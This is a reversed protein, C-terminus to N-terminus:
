GKLKEKTKGKKHLKQTNDEAKLASELFLRRAERTKQASRIADSIQQEWYQSGQIINGTVYAQRLHRLRTAAVGKLLGPHVKNVMATWASGRNAIAEAGRQELLKTKEKVKEQIEAEHRLHAEELERIHAARASIFYDKVADIPASVTFSINKLRTAGSDDDQLPTDGSSPDMFQKLYQVQYWSLVYDTRWSGHRKLVTSIRKTYDCPRNSSIESPLMAQAYKRDLCSLKLVEWFTKEDEETILSFDKLFAPAGQLALLYVPALNNFQWYQVADESIKASWTSPMPELAIPSGDKTPYRITPGDSLQRRMPTAIGLERLTELLSLIRHYSSKGMQLASRFRRPVDKILLEGNESRLLKMIDELHSKAPICTCHVSLPLDTEFYTSDIIRDKMSLIFESGSQHRFIGTIHQHLVRARALKGKLFGYAQSTTQGEFLLAERIVEDPYGLLTQARSIDKHWHVYRELSTVDKNLWSLALGRPTNTDVEAKPLSGDVDMQFNYHVDNQKVLGRLFEQIQDGATTPLYAVKVQRAAGTVTWATTMVLKIRGNAAMNDLSSNITRKDMQVGIPASTNEGALATNEILDMYSRLFEAGSTNVIGGAKEILQILENERRLHSINKRATQPRYSSKKHRKSRAAQHGPKFPDNIAGTIDNTDPVSSNAVSPVHDEGEIEHLSLSEEPGDVSRNQIDSDVLMDGPELPRTLHVVDSTETEEAAIQDFETNTQMSENSDGIAIAHGEMTEYDIFSTILAGRPPEAPYMSLQSEGSCVANREILPVHTIPTRFTEQTIRTEDVITKSVAGNENKNESAHTESAALPADSKACVVSRQLDYSSANPIKNSAPFQRSLDSPTRLAPDIVDPLQLTVTSSNAEAVIASESPTEKISEKGHGLETDDGIVILKLKGEAIAKRRKPPRGRKRKAVDNIHERSSISEDLRISTSMEGSKDNRVEGAAHEDPSDNDNLKRKPQRPKASRTKDKVSTEVVEDEVPKAVAKEAGKLRKQKRAEATESDKAPRGRKRTGDPLVPNKWEKEKKTKKKAANNTGGPTKYSKLFELLENRTEYFDAKHVDLFGGTHALDKSTYCGTPEEFGERTILEVYGSLTFYRYRRERGHTELVQVITMDALHPPPPHHEM